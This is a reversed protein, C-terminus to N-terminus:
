SLGGSVAAWAFVTAPVVRSRLLRRRPGAWRRPWGRGGLWVWIAVLVLGEAAVSWPVAPTLRLNLLLLPGWTLSGLAAVGFSLLGAAAATGPAHLRNTTKM